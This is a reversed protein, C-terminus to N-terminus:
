ITKGVVITLWSIFIQISHDRIRGIVAGKLHDSVRKVMKTILVWEFPGMNPGSSSVMKM